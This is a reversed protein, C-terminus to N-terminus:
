NIMQGCFEKPEVRTADLFYTLPGGILSAAMKGYDEATYPAVYSLRDEPMVLVQENLQAGGEGVSNVMLGAGAGVAAVAVGSLTGLSVGALAVGAVAVVAGTVAAGIKRFLGPEYKQVRWVVIYRNGLLNFASEPNNEVSKLNRLIEETPKTGSVFEYLSTKIGPLKHAAIWYQFGKMIYNEKTMQKQLDDDLVIEDCVLCFSDDVTGHTVRFPDLKGAGVKAWCAKMEEAIAQKFLDDDIRGYKEVAALDITLRKRPCEFAVPFGVVKSEKKVKGMVHNTFISLRCKEDDNVDKSNKNIQYGLAIIIIGVVLTIIIALLVNFDARKSRLIRFAM